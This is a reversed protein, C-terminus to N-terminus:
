SRPSSPTGHVRGTVGRHHHHHQKRRRPEHSNRPRAQEDRRAEKTRVLNLLLLSYLPSFSYYFLVSLRYCRPFSLIGILSFFQRSTVFFGREEKLLPGIAGWVLSLKDLTKVTMSRTGKELDYQEGLFEPHVELMSILLERREEKSMKTFNIKEFKNLTFGCAEVRLLFSEAALPTGGWSGALACM